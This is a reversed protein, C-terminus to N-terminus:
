EDLMLSIETLELEIQLETAEEFLIQADYDNGRGYEEVVEIMKELYDIRLNRAKRACGPTKWDKVSDIRKELDTVIERENYGSYSEFISLIANDNANARKLYDEAQVSCPESSGCGAILVSAIVILALVIIRKHTM